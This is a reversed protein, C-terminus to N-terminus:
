SQRGTAEKLMKIFDPHVDTGWGRLKDVDEWSKTYQQTFFYAVARNNYAGFNRPNIEIAKSYDDIARNYDGKDKWATGRNFYVMDYKVKKEIAKSFDAIARDLDGKAQYANGRNYYYDGDDPDIAIAQSYDALARASQKQVHYVNGRNNYAEPSKPNFKLAQNFDALAQEIDGNAQYAFGRYNYGRDKQPSKLVVDTWLSLEDKWVNNRFYAKLAYLAVLISLVLVILRINKNQWLYFIGGSIFLSYGALPLYLRHEFIVDKIPVFSSEPLLTIFFWFISFSLLRYRFRLRLAAVLILILIFLSVLVSGQMLHKAVPYDYDFNQNFPIFLLRIYTILVRPESLLYQLSSINTVTEKVRQMKLFDVSHTLWMVLPIILLTSFFPLFKRWSFSKKEQLFFIEYLLVMFPLTIAMEKSFMAMIAAVISLYYYGKVLRSEPLVRSKIYCSLSLLYFLTALSVARQVIYTVGQTQIPHAVFILGAFFGILNANERIKKENEPLISVTLYVLWWVSLASGLHVILNFIHYGLVDLQNVQYNIALSLYTLFRMPWYNWINGLNWLNRIAPNSVISQFDDLHFASFFTNSYIAAGLFLLTIIGLATNKQM